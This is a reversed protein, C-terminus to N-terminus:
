VRSQHTRHVRGYDGVIEGAGRVGPHLESASSVPRGDSKPARGNRRGFIKVGHRHNCSLTPLEICPLIFGGSESEHM